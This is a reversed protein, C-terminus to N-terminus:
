NMWKMLGCIKGDNSATHWGPLNSPAHCANYAYSCQYSDDSAYAFYRGSRPHGDDFKTDFSRAEDRTLFGKIGNYAHSNIGSDGADVRSAIINNGRRVYDSTSTCDKGTVAGFKSSSFNLGANDFPLPYMTTKANHAVDFNAGTTAPNYEGETILGAHMLHMLLKRSEDSDILRDEDGNCLVTSTCYTQGSFFQYGKDTDGPMENYKLKFVIVAREFEEMNKEIARLQAAKILDNGVLVGGVLLGIIVIAISLEILTFGRKKTHNYINSTM